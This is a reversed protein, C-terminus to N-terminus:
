TTYNDSNIAYVMALIHDAGIAESKNANQKQIYPGVVSVLDDFTSSSMRFYQQFRTSDLRLKHVLRYFEDCSMAGAHTYVIADHIWYQRKRKM